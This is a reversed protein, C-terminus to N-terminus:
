SARAFVFRSTQVRGIAAVTMDQSFANEGVPKAAKVFIGIKRLAINHQALSTRDAVILKEGNFEGTLFVHGEVPVNSPEVDHTLIAWPESTDTVIRGQADIVTGRRLGDSTPQIMMKDDVIPFVKSAFIEDADNAYTERTLM